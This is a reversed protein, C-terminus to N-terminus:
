NTLYRIFVAGNKFSKVEKLQLNTTIPHDMSFGDFLAPMGKRGDIGVGILITIEDLLKEDLFSSNILPGGVVALRKVQFEKFLIEMSKKLDIKEKGCVIWSIKKSDLYDLYEKTVKESTIILHHREYKSDDDWLLTGKNDVIIELGESDKKKSFSEKEFTEEPKKPSFKGKLALELEATVRGSLRAPANLENLTQYYEDVGKLKGVMECDIRGDISTMM